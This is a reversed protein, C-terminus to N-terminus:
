PKCAAGLMREVKFLLGERDVDGKQILQQIHNASLRRLDESTLDKATLILVPIGTTAETGRITELVEFGDVGPMMLDLIIGDPITHRVYELAERGGSAVDVRYGRDELIMKVQITAAENDEILLLVNGSPKREAKTLVLPASAPMLELPYVPLTLLFTTGKGFVSEVTLDGGLMKAAKAAIALGLGTGEYKRSATGDVQRFEEFIQSLCNEPIGIGTDKIEIHFTAGESRASVTVGGKETFKVANGILNQLIQQVRSEDSDIRPFPEPITASLTIGKEEALPAMMEMITEITLRINFPRALIEMKGAEIKSLDLIDNILALLNKGNREIVSLYNMEEESLKGAAQRLLVRSLALVSNLPTRLEHSMNSLFESKMRGSAELQRGQHQLETNQEQLEGSQQQLEESQQRLEETQAQLEEAQATLAEKDRQTVELLNRIKAQQAAAHLRTSLIQATLALLETQQSRMEQFSAVEMVGILQDEYLLPAAHISRPPERLTGTKGLADEKTIGKLLIPKKEVAVQGVVGEGPRCEGPFHKGEALAYSAALRCLSTKQDVAYLVGACADVYRSIFHIGKRALEEISLDGALAENLANQGNKVWFQDQLRDVLQNFHRAMDAIESNGTLNSKVLTGSATVGSMTEKLASVSADISNTILYTILWSLLALIGVAIISDRLIQERVRGADAMFGDAKKTAYAALETLKRDLVSAYDAGKGRAIRHATKRDGQLVLQEIEFRIPKWGAFLSLTEEILAKGEPGLIRERVINLHQYVGKEESLIEYVALNMEMDTGSLLVEKMGNVMRLAGAKAEIAATSVKLPHEYLTVTLEGLANMQTISYGMFVIYSFLILSFSLIMRRRISLNDLWVTM